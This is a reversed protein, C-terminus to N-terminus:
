TRLLSIVYELEQIALIILLVIQLEEANGYESVNTIIANIDQMVTHIKAWVVLM